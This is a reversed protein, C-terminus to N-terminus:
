RILKITELKGLNICYAHEKILLILVCTSGSFEINIGSIKLDNEM